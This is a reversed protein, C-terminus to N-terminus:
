NYPVYTKLHDDFSVNFADDVYHLFGEIGAEHIGIWCLLGYFLCWLHGLAWNGFVTCHDIHYNHDILTAQWAQWRPHVPICRYVQSADSKWLYAPKSGPHTHMKACINARLDSLNDLIVFGGETPILSNLSNAGASHDNVLCLKASGKKPITFMLQAVMGPLLEPGFSESYQGVLM